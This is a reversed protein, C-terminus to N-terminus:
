KDYYRGILTSIEIIGSHQCLLQSYFVSMYIICNNYVIVSIAYIYLVSIIYIIILELIDYM